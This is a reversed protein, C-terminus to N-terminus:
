FFSGGLATSIIIVLVGAFILTTPILMASAAKEGMQIMRQKKFAWQEMAQTMLFQGIEESGKQMGQALSSTFKKIENSNSIIGFRHIAEQASTGNKIETCADQMLKGVTTNEKSNAVTSWADVLTMGSNILLALSSVIEPLEAECEEQRKKLDDKTKRLWYYGVFFSAALGVVLIGTSASDIMAALWFTVCLFLHSFTLAQAWILNAYFEAYHQGHLMNVNSLLQDKNKGRLSFLKISALSFGAVYLEKMPYDASDLAELFGEYKKGKFALVAFMITLITSIIMLVIRILM